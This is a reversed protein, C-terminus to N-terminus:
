QGAGQGGARHQPGRGDAAVVGHEGRDAAQGAVQVGAAAGDVVLAAAVEDGGSRDRGALPAVQAVARGRVRPFYAPVPVGLAVKELQEGAGVQVIGPVGEREDVGVIVAVVVCEGVREGGPQPVRQVAV